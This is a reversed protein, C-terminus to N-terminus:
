SSSAGKIFNKDGFIDKLNSNLFLFINKSNILKKIYKDKFRVPPSFQFKIKKIKEEKQNNFEFDDDIELTCAQKQYKLIDDHFERAM